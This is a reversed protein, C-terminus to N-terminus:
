RCRRLSPETLGSACCKSRTTAVLAWRPSRRWPNAWAPRGPARCRGPGRGNVAVGAPPRTRAIIQAPASVTSSSRGQQQGDVHPVGLGDDPEVVAFEGRPRAGIGAQEVVPADSGVRCSGGVLMGDHDAAEQRRRAVREVHVAHRDAGAHGPYEGAQALHDVAVDIDIRHHDLGADPGAHRNEVVVGLLDAGVADGVGDGGEVEVATRGDHDVETRAVVEVDDGSVSLEEPAGDGRADLDAEIGEEAPRRGQLRNFQHRWAADNAPVGDLRQLRAGHESKGRLDVAHDFPEPGLQAAARDDGGAAQSGQDGRLSRRDLVDLGEQREVTQTDDEVTVLLM